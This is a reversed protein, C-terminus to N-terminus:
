PLGKLYRRVEDVDADTYNKNPDTKFSFSRGSLVAVLGIVLDRTRLQVMEKPRADVGRTVLVNSDDLLPLLPKLVWSAGLYSVHELFRLREREKSANLRRVFEDQAAKDGLRALAVVLGEAAEPEKEAELRKRLEKADVGSSRGLFLAIEHRAQGEPAKDYAAFLEAAHAPEFHKAFGGAASGAVQPDEDALGRLFARIAEPGGVERLANLAVRRVGADERTSLEALLPAAKRGLQRARVAADPNKALVQAKLTEMDADGKDQTSACSPLAALALAALLMTVVTGRRNM